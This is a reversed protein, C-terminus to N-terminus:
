EYGEYWAIRKTNKWLTSISETLSVMSEQGPIASEGVIEWFAVAQLGLGCLLAIIEDVAATVQLIM